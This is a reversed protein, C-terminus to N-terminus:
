RRGLLLLLRSCGQVICGIILTVIQSRIVLAPTRGGAAAPITTVRRM